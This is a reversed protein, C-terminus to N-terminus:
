AASGPRLAVTMASPLTAPMAPPSSGSASPRAACANPRPVAGHSTAAAGPASSTPTGRDQGGGSKGGRGRRLLNGGTVGLSGHVAGPVGEAPPWPHGRCMTHAAGDGSEGGGRQKGRGAPRDGGLVVGVDDGAFRPA